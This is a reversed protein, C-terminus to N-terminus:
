LKSLVGSRRIAQASFSWWTESGPSSKGTLLYKGKYVQCLHSYNPVWICRWGRTDQESDPLMCDLGAPAPFKPSVWTSLIPFLHAKSMAWESGSRLLGQSRAPSIDDSFFIGAEQVTCRKHHTTLFTGAGERIHDSALINFYYSM